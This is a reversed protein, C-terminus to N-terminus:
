QLGGVRTWDYYLDGGYEYGGGIADVRMALVRWRSGNTYSTDLLFVVGPTDAFRPAEAWRFAGTASHDLSIPVYEGEELDYFGELTGSGAIAATMDSRNWHLVPHDSM